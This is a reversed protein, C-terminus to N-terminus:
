FIVKRQPRHRSDVKRPCFFPNLLYLGSHRNGLDIAERAISPYMRGDKVLLFLEKTEKWYKEGAETTQFGEKRKGLITDQSM